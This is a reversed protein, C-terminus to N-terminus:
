TADASLVVHDAAHPGNNAVTAVYTIDGVGIIGDPPGALSVALDAQDPTSVVKQLTASNNTSDPDFESASAQAQLDIFSGSAVLPSMTIFVSASQGAPVDSVSFTRVAGNVSTAAPTSSVFLANNPLTAQVHVGTATDPGNNSVKLQYTFNQGQLISG